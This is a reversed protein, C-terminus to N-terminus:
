PLVFLQGNLRLVNDTGGRDGPPYKPSIKLSSPRPTHFAPDHHIFHLKLNPISFEVHDEGSNRSSSHKLKPEDLHIDLFERKLRM